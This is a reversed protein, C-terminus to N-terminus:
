MLEQVIEKLPFVFDKQHEVPYRIIVENEAAFVSKVGKVMKVKGVALKSITTEFYWCLSGTNEIPYLMMSDFTEIESRIMRAIINVVMDKLLVRTKSIELIKSDKDCKIKRM